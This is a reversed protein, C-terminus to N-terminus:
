SDRSVCVIEPFADPRPPINVLFGSRAATFHDLYRQVQLINAPTVNQVTKFEVIFCETASRTTILMDLRVSGVHVANYLIPITVETQVSVQFNTRLEHAVAHQYVSESHGPGLERFVARMAGDICSQITM